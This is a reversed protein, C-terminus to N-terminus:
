NTSESLNLRIANRKFSTFNDNETRNAKNECSNDSDSYLNCINLSNSHSLYHCVDDYEGNPPSGVGGDRTSIISKNCLEQCNELSDNATIVDSINNISILGERCYGGPELESYSNLDNNPDTELDGRFEDLIENNEKFAYIPEGTENLGWLFDDSSFIKTIGYDGLGIPVSEWNVLGDITNCPKSCKYVQNNDTVAYLYYKDRADIDIFKGDINQPLSLVIDIQDPSPPSTITSCERADEGSNFVTNMGEFNEKKKCFKFFLFLVILLISLNMLKM